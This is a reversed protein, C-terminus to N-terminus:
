MVIIKGELSQLVTQFYDQLDTALEDKMRANFQHYDGEDGRFRYYRNGYKFGQPIDNFTVKGSMMYQAFCEYTVEFPNRVNSERASRFTCFNRIFGLLGGNQPLFQDRRGWGGYDPYPIGYRTMVEKFAREVEKMAVGMYHSEASGKQGFMAGRQDAQLGHGLRHAMIWGTMPVRESGSNNTYIVNVQDHNLMKELQPWVRPMNDELWDIDVIGVEQLPGSHTATPQKGAIDPHNIFIINFMTEEPYKWMGRIKELAKPATVLKRDQSHKFSSPKDFNGIHHFDAIPSEFLDRLLM